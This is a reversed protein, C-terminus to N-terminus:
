RRADTVVCKDLRDCCADRCHVGRVGVPVRVVNPYQLNRRDVWTGRGRDREGVNADLGPTSASTVLRLDDALQQGVGVKSLALLLDHVNPTNSGFTLDLECCWEKLEHTLQYVVVVVGLASREGDQFL